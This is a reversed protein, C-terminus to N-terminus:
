LSPKYCKYWNLKEHRVQIPYKHDTTPSNGLIERSDHRPSLNLAILTLPPLKPPWKEHMFLSIFVKPREGVQHHPMKRGPLVVGLMAGVASIRYVNDAKKFQLNFNVCSPALMITNPWKQLTTHIPRFFGKVCHLPSIKPFRSKVWIKKQMFDLNM